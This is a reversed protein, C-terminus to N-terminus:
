LFHTVVLEKGRGAFSVVMGGGSVNKQVAAKSKGGGFRKRLTRKKRGRKKM